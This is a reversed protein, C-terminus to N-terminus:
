GLVSPCRDGVRCKCACGPVPCESHTKFWADIHDVHGGHKCEQCWSFWNGFRNATTSLESQQRAAPPASGQAGGAGRSREGTFQQTGLHLMCIACRPLPKGCAPCASVNPLNAGTGGRTHAMTRANVSSTIANPCFQCRVFVQPAVRTNSHVLRHVDFQARCKWLQWVDLLDRYTEIWLNARADQQLIKADAPSLLPMAAVVLASATQVDGTRDVYNALLEIGRPVFGVLPLGEISGADVVARLEVDLFRRFADDPLFRCAFAVRDALSLGTETLVERYQRDSRTLYGFAARLYPSNLQTRLEACTDKWLNNESTPSYGALSMAAAIYVSKQDPHKEAGQRLAAIARPMDHHFLSLAAARDHQGSEEYRTLMELFEPEDSRMCWDCMHLVAERQVSRDFVPAFSQPATQLDSKAGRSRRVIKQDADLVEPVGVLLIESVFLSHSDLWHWVYSVAPSDHSEAKSVHLKIGYGALARRHMIASIDNRAAQNGGVSAAPAPSPAANVAASTPLSAPPSAVPCASFVSGSALLLEGKPSIDVCISEGVVFDSVVADASITIIRNRHTPHWNFDSIYSSEDVKGCQRRTVFSGADADFKVSTRLHMDFLQVVSSNGNTLAALLGPRTPCWQMRVMHAAAGSADKEKLPHTYVADSFNRIDWVKIANEPQSYSALLNCTSDACLQYAAGKAAASIAPKDQRIDMVRLFKLGIGAAILHPREPLWTLSLVSDNTEPFELTSESTRASTKVKLGRSTVADNTTMGRKKSDTLSVSSGINVDWLVLCSDRNSKDYGAALLNRDNPNWSVCNCRRATYLALDFRNAFLGANSIINAISVAGDARGVAVLTSPEQTPCWSVVTSSSLAEDGSSGVCQVSLNAVGADVDRLSTTAVSPAHAHHEGRVNRYLKIGSGSALFDETAGVPSWLIGRRPFVLPVAM